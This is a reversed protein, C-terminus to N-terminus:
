KALSTQNERWAGLFDQYGRVVEPEGSGFADTLEPAIPSTGQDALLALAQITVSDDFAALRSVLDQIDGSAADVVKEAYDRSCSWAGDGDADLWVPGTSSIVYPNWVPSDPQYTKPIRWYPADVGPGLAIVVLHADHDPVAISIKGSFKENAGPPHEISSDLVERGNLFVLIRNATTWSPGRVTVDLAFTQDSRKPAEQPRDLSAMEGPGYQGEVRVDTLLGMSVIAKSNLLNQCAESIDINSPDSDDCRIYTRGQGVLKCSVEHSDSAGIPALKIGRNLMAFWDHYPQLPDTQLAGSNVLEMANARLRWGHINGGSARNHNNPGLPRFGRHLDRGHNLIVVQVDPTAFISSFLEDWGPAQHNPLPAGSRIPFINFHGVSTTVENGVVPTFYQRMGLRSAAEEYDIHLNHDTAIPLELGEGAISIIREDLTADGHRSYTFTHVHTDCNVYGPTPVEHEIRLRRFVVESPELDIKIQDLGWEFGRTAYVHYTGAALGISARGDGTYVMGPRIAHLHDSSSGIQVLTGREDVITFRGPILREDQDVLELNLTSENFRKDITQDSLWVQHIVIDDATKSDTSIELRNPGDLVMGQEIPWVSLMDNEDRPLSAVLKGNLQIRWRQKVDEHRIGLTWPSQNATSDFDIALESKDAVQPFTSWERQGGNRLHTAQDALMRTEASAVTGTFTALTFLSLCVRLRFYM